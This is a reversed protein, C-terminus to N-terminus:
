QPAPKITPLVGPEPAPKPDPLPTRSAVEQTSGSSAPKPEPTPVTSAPPAYPLIVVKPAGPRYLDALIQLPQDHGSLRNRYVEMNEIVRMVYNRTESFPIQEIWDIPDVNPSRPDGYAEIWKRVNGPGANYAAIALIYSGGWDDLNNSLETMGLQIITPTDSMLANARYVVHAQAAARKASAPMLQMLGKAGAASVAATDFETEQRILGLVLAPEPAPGGGKFTPVDIM